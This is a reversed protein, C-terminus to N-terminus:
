FNKFPITKMTMMTDATPRGRKFIHRGITVPGDRQHINQAPNRSNPQYTIIDLRKDRLFECLHGAIIIIECLFNTGDTIFLFNPLYNLLIVESIGHPWLYHKKPQNLFRPCKLCCYLKSTLRFQNPRCIILSTDVFSSNNM